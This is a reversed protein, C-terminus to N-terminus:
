AVLLYPLPENQNKYRSGTGIIQIPIVAPRKNSHFAAGGRGPTPACGSLEPCTLGVQGSSKTDPHAGVAFQVLARIRARKCKVNLTTCDV